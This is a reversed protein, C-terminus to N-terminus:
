KKKNVLKEVKDALWFFVSASIKKNDKLRKVWFCQNQNERYFELCEPALGTFIVENNGNLIEYTLIRKKDEKRKM